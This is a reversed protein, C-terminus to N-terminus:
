INAAMLLTVTSFRVGLFPTVPVREPPLRFLRRPLVSRGARPGLCAAVLAIEPPLLAHYLPPASCGMRPGLAVCACVRILTPIVLAWDLHAPMIERLSRKLVDAGAPLKGGSYVEIEVLYEGFHEIVTVPVGLMTEAVDQVVMPTTAARGQLKTAIQRRRVDVSLGESAGLGLADEWYWLGWTATYPNLQASLEDRARWVADVEPQLAKQFTITEQSALYNEPLYSMLERM